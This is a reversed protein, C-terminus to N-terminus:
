SSSRVHPTSTALIPSCHGIKAILGKFNAMKVDVHGKLGRFDIKQARSDRLCVKPFLEEPM